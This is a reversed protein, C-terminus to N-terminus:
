SPLTGAPLSQKRLDELLCHRWFVERFTDNEAMLLYLREQIREIFHEPRRHGERNVILDLRDIYDEIVVSNKRIQEFVIRVEAESLTEDGRIKKYLSNLEHM